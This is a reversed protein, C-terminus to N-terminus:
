KSRQVQVLPMLAFAVQAALGIANSADRYLALHEAPASGSLMTGVLLEALLLLAFAVGGMGARPAVASAVAFSVGRAARAM